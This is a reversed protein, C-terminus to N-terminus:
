AATRAARQLATRCSRNGARDIVSRGDADKTDVRAGQGALRVAYSRLAERRGRDSVASACDLLDMIPTHGREDAADLGDVSLDSLSALADLAGQAAALHWANRGGDALANLSAGLDALRRLATAANCRAAFLFPTDGLRAARAEIPVADALAMELETIDGQEIIQFLAQHRTGFSAGARRMLSRVAASRVLDLPCCGDENELNLPAGASVLKGVLDVLAMEDGGVWSQRRESARLLSHLPTDGWLTEVADIRAGLQLIRDIVSLYLPWDADDRDGVPLSALMRHLVSRRDDYSDASIYTVATRDAGRLLEAVIEVRARGQCHLVAEYLQKGPVMGRAQELLFEVNGTALAALVDMGARYGKQQEEREAQGPSMSAPPTPGSCQQLMRTARSGGARTQPARGHMDCRRPDAGHRLLAELAGLQMENDNDAEALWHLATEGYRNSANVDAGAALLREVVAASHARALPFDFYDIGVATASCVGNPSAGHALLLDVMAEDARFCAKVLATEHSSNCLTDPDAGQALLLRAVALHGNGAAMALPTPTERVIFSSNGKVEVKARLAILTEVVDAHGRSAAWHLARLNGRNRSEIRAGRQVLQRVLDAHGSAAAYHLLSSRDRGPLNVDVGEDLLALVIASAGRLAFRHISHDGDILKINLPLDPRNQQARRWVELSGALELPRMGQDDVAELGFATRPLAWDLLDPDRSQCIFHLSNRGTQNQEDFAEGLALLREILERDGCAMAHDIVRTGQDTRARPDAGLRWLHEALEPHRSVLAQMLPTRGRPGRIDLTAGAALLADTAALDGRAIARLLPPLYSSDQPREHNLLAVPQMALLSVLGNQDGTDIARQLQQLAILDSYKM